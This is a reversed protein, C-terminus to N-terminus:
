KSSSDTAGSLREYKEQIAQLCFTKLELSEDILLKKLEKHFSEPIDVTARVTKETKEKKGKISERYVKNAALEMLGENPVQHDMLDAISKKARKAM